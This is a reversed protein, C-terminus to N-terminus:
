KLIAALKQELAAERLETAIIKGQPDLLVNYPIGEYGYLAVTANTWGKLDSVHQWTLKDDKIAKLWAAKNEDLSVGLITFNKNKYKNYAAVVNPNEGRCPGCWSAWFDVLVYKGKLQSLSFAKGTTDNMTFDPAMMGVTPMGKKANSPAPQNAALLMQNFQTVVSAIGQHNPFRKALNAVPAKLLQPDVQRTYGLAFMAIVPDNITDISKVIFGRFDDEMKDMQETQIAVLSDNNKTTKLAELKDAQASLAKSRNNINVLFGKFAHNAPTNFDPGELTLDNIDAKFKIDAKDNIFVFGSEVKELRLRYLGEESGVAGLSFKGGKVEATDLVEPNKQSFFLQELYIKQDPVNKIEGSVTFKGKEDKEKCSFITVGFLLVIFFHKTM